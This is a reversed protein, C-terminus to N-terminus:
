LRAGERLGGRASGAMACGCPNAHKVIVCAPLAFSRSCHAPRGSTTSTTSRSSRAASGSWGLSCTGAHRRARSLLRGAPAPERRLRPRAAERALRRPARPLDGRDAFWTMISAEYAATYAFTEAALSRRTAEALRRRHPAARRARLRVSRPRLRRGRAHLEQRRRAPATPGGIDIMEVADEERTNKHWAVEDFPYLNVCVLDIPEIGHARLAAMDAERDRRALIGAHIRPHLTKVRGELLEPFETISEVRM